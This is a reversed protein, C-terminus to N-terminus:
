EGARCVGSLHQVVRLEVDNGSTTGTPNVYYNIRDLSYFKSYIIERLTKLMKKLGPKVVDFALIHIFYVEVTKYVLLDSLIVLSSTVSWAYTAIHNNTISWLYIHVICYFWIFGIVLWAVIWKVFSINHQKKDSSLARVEDVAEKFIKNLAFRTAPPALEIILHQLLRMDEVDDHISALGKFDKIDELIVNSKRRANEIKSELRHKSSTFFFLRQITTPPIPDGSFKVILILSSM